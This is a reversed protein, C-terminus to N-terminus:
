SRNHSGDTNLKFSGAPPPEWAVQVEQQSEEVFVPTPLLLSSHIAEVQRFLKPSFCNMPPQIALSSWTTGSSRCCIYWRVSSLQGNGIMPGCMLLVSISIWGNRRLSVFKHWYQRPDVLQEGLEMAFDRDQPLHMIAELVQLCRPCLDTDLIGRRKREINTLISRDHAGYSCISGQHPRSNGFEIM